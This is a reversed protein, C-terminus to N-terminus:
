QLYARLGDLHATMEQRGKIYLDLLKSGAHEIKKITVPEPPAIVYVHGTEELKKITERQTNYRIHRNFIGEVFAPYEEYRKEALWTYQYPQKVFSRHQTLVVVIKDNGDNVAKEVPVADAFGGDLYYKGDLPVKKSIVPLTASARIWDIDEPMHHITKYEAQATEVNTVVVVLETPNNNFTDYDFPDIENQVTRYLFEPSMVSGTTLFSNLGMYRKDDRFALNVRNVRGPQQSVFNVGILAGASVGYVTDFQTIGQELMIDLVGATFQGRYGGGELVLATGAM